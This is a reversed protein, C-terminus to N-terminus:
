KFTKDPKLALHLCHPKSSTIAILTDQIPYINGQLIKNKLFFTQFITILDFKNNLFRM